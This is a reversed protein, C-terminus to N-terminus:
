FDLLDPLAYGRFSESVEDGWKTASTKNFVTLGVKSVGHKLPDSYVVSTQQVLESLLGRAIEDEPKQSLWLHIMSAMFECEPKSIEIIFKENIPIM